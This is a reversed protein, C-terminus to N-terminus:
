QPLRANRRALCLAAYIRAAAGGRRLLDAGRPTHASELSGPGLILPKVGAQSSSTATRTPAFPTSACRCAWSRTSGSWRDAGAPPRHRSRLRPRRLRLDLELDLDPVLQRRGRRGAARIASEAGGCRSRSPRCTCISGTTECRDPVVFGARSSSLERISYVIGSRQASSLPPRPGPAAAGAADIRRRQAGARSALLPHAAGHHGPGGGPLRLPRFLRGPRDTRRDGGVAPRSEQLFRESGDGTEEEGVVLLLGASPREEPALAEALALWAEVM